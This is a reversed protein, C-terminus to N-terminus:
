LLLWSCIGIAIFVSAILAHYIVFRYFQKPNSERVAGRGQVFLIKGRYLSMGIVFAYIAAFASILVKTIVGEM